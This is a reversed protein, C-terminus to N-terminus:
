DEREEQQRCKDSGQAKGKWYVWLWLRKQRGNKDGGKEKAGSKSFPLCM